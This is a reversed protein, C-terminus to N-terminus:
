SNVGSHCPDISSGQLFRCVVDDKSFRLCLVICKTYVNRIQWIDITLLKSDRNSTWTVIIKRNLASALAVLTHEQVHYAHVFFIHSDTMTFGICPVAIRIGHRTTIRDGQRIRITAFINHREVESNKWFNGNSLLTSCNAMTLRIGPLTLGIGYRTIIAQHQLIHVTTIANHRQVKGNKRLHWNGLFAGDKTITLGIGPLTLGIRYRAVIAQCQLIHVTTIANHCQVEGNKWLHRNSLLTSCNAMALGIGPVTLGIRNRAVIAKCQTVHITTIANHHKMKSNKWFHRDGFLTDDNAVTLGIGPLTLGIGYRTIIAQHQLVYM